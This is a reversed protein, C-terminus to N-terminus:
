EHSTFKPGTTIGRSQNKSPLVMSSPNHKQNTTTYNISFTKKKLAHNCFTLHTIIFPPLSLLKTEKDIREKEETIIGSKAKEIQSTM